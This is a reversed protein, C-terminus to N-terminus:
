SSIKVRETYYTISKDEAVTYTESMIYGSGYVVSRFVAEPEGSQDNAPNINVVHITSMAGSNLTIILVPLRGATFAALIESASKDCVGNASATPVTTANCIFLGSQDQQSDQTEMSAEVAKKFSNSLVEEETDMEIKVTHQGATETSLYATQDAIEIYLDFPYVSWDTSDLEANYQAGYEPRSDAHVNYVTGDFTIKLIKPYKDGFDGYCQFGNLQCYPDHGEDQHVETEIESEEFYVVNTRVVDFYSAGVAKKFNDSPIAKDENEHQIAITHNGQTPVAILVAALSYTDPGDKAETKTYQLCFNFPYESFDFPIRGVNANGAGYYYRPSKYQALNATYRIGDFVIELSEPLLGPEAFYQTVVDTSFIDSSLHQVCYGLNHPDEFSITKEELLIELSGSAIEFGNDSLTKIGEEAHNLKDATIVEGTQWEHKEYAM